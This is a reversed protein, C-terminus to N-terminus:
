AMGVLVQQAEEQLDEARKLLLLKAASVVQQAVRLPLPALLRVLARPETCAVDRLTRLGAQHLQRARGKRVCPLELLPLLEMSACHSLREAFEPLLARYAWLEPLEQCFHGLASAFSAASSLLAQVQGRPQGFKAAVDWVSRQQWLDNLQLTLQFRELLTREEVTDVYRGSLHGMGLLYGELAESIGLAQAARQEEEGLEMYHRYYQSPEVRQQPIASPGRPAVLHLLHLHCRLSLSGLSTWLEEHVPQARAPDMCAKFAARGLPSTELTPGGQLLGLDHLRGLSEDLVRGVDAGEQRLQLALLSLNLVEAAAAKTQAVRLGIVSLLLMDLRGDQLLSSRCRELPARVLSLVKDKQGPPVLLISEGSSDLGARGARGCMQQYRSRTLFETGTYPSRVVVRKAPLNVGAALTSTCALCCLVGSSYAEELLRREELTLGSHHYAVGQPVTRRLVRCLQGGCEARLAGLLTQKEERRHEALSRPLSRALLLAVSECNRKTPCFLLCAHQPVVEGVLLSLQEPDEPTGSANGAGVKPLVRATQQQPEGEVLEVISDEVKVYERLEVPRFSGVFVDAGLFTTLDEMNGLTASMGVIRTGGSVRKVKVLTSELTAGRSSGDGLMHLEDVVLLGLEAMRGLETLADVLFHAKEITAVYLACRQRRRVPPLPGRSGAYEEVLFGLDVALPALARVKEQVLSVYPLVFLVSRGALLLEQLALVEAVLTKGGSTPLSYVLHGRGRSQALHLCEKQWDYLDTIGRHLKLLSRVVSPLGFFDGPAEAQPSLSLSLNQRTNERLKEKVRALLSCPPSSRLSTEGWLVDRNGPCPYM